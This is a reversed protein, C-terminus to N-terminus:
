AGIARWRYYAMARPRPGTDDAEREKVFGEREYWAIARRNEVPTKLWVEDGMRERALALLARGVGQGQHEPTVFLQALYGTAVDFLVFGVALGDREAVFLRCGEAMQGAYRERREEASSEGHRDLGTALWSEVTIQAAIDLDGEGGPRIAIEGTV